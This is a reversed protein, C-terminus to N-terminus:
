VSPACILKPPTLKAMLPVSASRSLNVTPGFILPTPSLRLPAKSAASCLL